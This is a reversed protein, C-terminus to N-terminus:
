SEPANNEGCLDCFYSEELISSNILLTYINNFLAQELEYERAYATQLREEGEILEIVNIEGLRFNEKNLGQLALASQIEARTAKITSQTSVIQSYAIDIDRNLENLIKQEKYKLESVLGAVRSLRNRREFGDFLEYRLNVTAKLNRLRGSDGGDDHSQEAELALGVSPYFGGKEASLQHGAAEIESAVRTMNDNKLTAQDVYFSKDLKQAALYDPEVANFAPLPGTLFELNSVANNLASNADNLVVYSAAQRSRAYDQMVKGAAGAEVMDDITAVIEDIREVFLETRESLRTFRLIDLYYGVVELLLTSKQIEIDINSTRLLEKRRAVESSTQFGNFLDQNLTIGSTAPNNNSEDNTPANHEFGGSTTVEIKPYYDAKAEKVFYELQDSRSQAINLDPNEDMAFLIITSLSLEVKDDAKVGGRDAAFSASGSIVIFCFILVYFLRTM